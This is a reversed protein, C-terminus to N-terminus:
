TLIRMEKRIKMLIIGLHNQGKGTSLKKGWFYDPRFNREEVLEADGTALLKEKLEPHQLFKQRVIEKMVAIRKSNWEVQETRTLCRLGNKGGLKKALRGLADDRKDAGVDLNTFAVRENPKFKQAQFCAEATQYTLGDYEITAPYMNSLFWTGDKKVFQEIKNM